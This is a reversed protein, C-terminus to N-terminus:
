LSTFIVYFVSIILLVIFVCGAGAGSDATPKSTPVHAQYIVSEGEAPEPKDPGYEKGGCRSCSVGGSDIAGCKQCYM